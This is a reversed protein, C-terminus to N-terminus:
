DNKCMSVSHLPTAIPHAFDLPGGLSLAGLELELSLTVFLLLPLSLTGGVTV